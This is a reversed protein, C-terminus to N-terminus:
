GSGGPVPAPAAPATLVPLLALASSRFRPSSEHRGRSKRHAGEREGGGALGVVALVACLLIGALVTIWATQRRFYACFVRWNLVLHVIGVTTFLLGAIEHLLTVGPVKVHLWMLTGTFGIAIFFVMTLPSLWHRPATSAPM